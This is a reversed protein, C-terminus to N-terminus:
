RPSVASLIRKECDAESLGDCEIIVSALTRYAGDRRAFVTEIEELVGLGTLSPRASLDTQELRAKLTAPSARLYVARAGAAVALRILSAAGPATPTGGGLAIVRPAERLQEALSAAEVERFRPEGLARFAGGVTLEGAAAAVLEDLDVAAAGCAGAVRRALTTKGAGRLGMLLIHSSLGM